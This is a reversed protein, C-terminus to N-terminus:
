QERLKVRRKAKTRAGVARLFERRSVIHANQLSWPLKHDRRTMILSDTTRGRQHWCEQWLLKFDEYTLEFPEGRFHAQARQRHWAIYQDHLIPDPGSLWVHPYPGRLKPQEM